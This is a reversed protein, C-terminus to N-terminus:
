PQLLVGVDIVLGPLLPTELQDGPELLDPKPYAGGALRFVEIRDADPQVAWYEAVGFRAYLERKRVLDHRPDSVVEIALTPAGQLNAETIRHTDAAALYVLDPQVVVHDSMVADYPAVFVKGEKHAAVHNGLLVVLRVVVEQHRTKPAPSLFLEGDILEWRRGDDPLAAYDAYTLLAPGPMGM